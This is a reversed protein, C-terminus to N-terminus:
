WYVKVPETAACTYPTVGLEELVAEAKRYADVDRVGARDIFLSLALQAREDKGQKAYSLGLYYYAKDLVGVSADKALARELITAARSYRTRKFLLIGKALLQYADDSSLGDFMAASVYMAEVVVLGGVPQMALLPAFVVGTTTAVAVAANDDVVQDTALDEHIERWELVQEQCRLKSGTLPDRLVLVSDGIGPDDSGNAQALVYSRFAPSYRAHDGFRGKATACGSMM